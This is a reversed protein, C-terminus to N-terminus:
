RLLAEQLISRLKDRLSDTEAQCELLEGLVDEPEEHEDTVTHPNKFDLNYNRAKVEEATVRWAVESEVRDQREKGGWWKVCDDLYEVRIPKTMSYAKQGAPIRHEYFWIEETPKGKEFFLLNTGISAYPKFVSNPLRVITHLNCEQLLHEKLRTKVGEGFLSGDPLVVAARGGEKLLRIILALFLDATERTQFHAPFNSEIGDEEKGGFPPNTLIIDLRDAQGYDKYPRALTNDHQVFSPDNIGHLLMNTVCLMHPLQKKEVARLNAQIQQEDKATKVYHKRMYRLASTLFGGTGCAPDLLVEQPKPDIRDVMFATVARPTYYEGANGASQLDNLLQEYIDGFHQRDALDNFNVISIKNIVQRLLQGSKMYNYADEFVDRVV